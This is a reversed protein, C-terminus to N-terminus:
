ANSAEKRMKEYEQDILYEMMARKKRKTHAAMEDLRDKHAQSVYGLNADTAANYPM